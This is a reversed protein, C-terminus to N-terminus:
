CNHAKVKAQEPKAFEYICKINELFVRKRVTACFM